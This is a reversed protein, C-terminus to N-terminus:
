FNIDIGKPPRALPRDSIRVVVYKLQNLINKKVLQSDHDAAIITLEPNKEVLKGEPRLNKRKTKGCFDICISM